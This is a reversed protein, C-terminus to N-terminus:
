GTARGAMSRSARRDGALPEGRILRPSAEGEPLGRERAWAELVREGPELDLHVLDKREALRDCLLRADQDSSAVIPGLRWSGRELRSLGFAEVGAGRDVVYGHAPSKRPPILSGVLADRPAGQARADLAVIADRDSPRVPRVFASPQAPEVVSPAGTFRLSVGADVFGVRRYLKEGLETAYLAVTPGRAAALALDLLSRGIGRRQHEPHVIMMAVMAHGQGFPLLLVTGALGGTSAEVTWGEGISLLFTWTTLDPHFGVADALAIALPLDPPELARPALV